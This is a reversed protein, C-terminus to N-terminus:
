ASVQERSANPYGKVVDKKAWSKWSHEVGCTLKMGNWPRYTQEMIKVMEPVMHLDDKHFEFLLEDHVQLLM